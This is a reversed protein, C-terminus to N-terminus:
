DFKAMDEMMQYAEGEPREECIPFGYRDEVWSSGKCHPQFHTVRSSVLCVKLTAVM